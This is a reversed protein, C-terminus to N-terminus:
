FSAIAEQLRDFIEFLMDFGAMNLVNLVDPKPHVLKVFASKHAKFAEGIRNAADMSKAIKLLGSLGASSISDVETLDILLYKTGGELSKLLSNELLSVNGLNMRGKLYFITVPVRSEAQSVNIELDM